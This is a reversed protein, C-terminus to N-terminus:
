EQELKAIHWKGEVCTLNFEVWGGATTTFSSGCMSVYDGTTPITITRETSTYVYVTISKGNHESGSSSVSLSSNATLNVYFTEYNVDLSSVSNSTNYTSIRKLYNLNVNDGTIIDTQLGRTYQLTSQINYMYVTRIYEDGPSDMTYSLFISGEGAHYASAMFAYAIKSQKDFMQSVYIPKEEMIANSLENWQDQSITGSSGGNLWNVIYSGGGSLDDVYKKTAPEYDGSPTYPNNNNKLLSNEIVNELSLGTNKSNYGM